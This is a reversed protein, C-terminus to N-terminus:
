VMREDSVAALQVKVPAVPWIMGKKPLWISIRTCGSTETVQRAREPGTTKGVYKEEKKGESTVTVVGAVEVDAVADTIVGMVEAALGM